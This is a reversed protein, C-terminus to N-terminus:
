VCDLLSVPKNNAKILLGIFRDYKYLNIAYIPESKVYKINHKTVPM